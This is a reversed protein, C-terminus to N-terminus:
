SSNIKRFIPTMLYFPELIKGREEFSLFTQILIESYNKIRNEINFIDISKNLNLLFKESKSDCLICDINNKGLFDQVENLKMSKQFEIKEKLFEVYFIDGYGYLITIKKNKESLSHQSFEQFFLYNYIEFYNITYFEANPFLFSLAKAVTIGVRIRIFSAPGNLTLFKDIEELKINNRTLFFEMSNLITEAPALKRPHIFQDIIKQGDSLAISLNEATTDFALIFNM